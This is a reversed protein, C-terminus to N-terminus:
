VVLAVVHCRAARCAILDRVFLVALNLSGAAFRGRARPRFLGFLALSTGACDWSQWAALDRRTGAVGWGSISIPVLAVGIMVTFLVAADTAPLMFGQARGLAWVVVITLAHIFCGLALIVVGRPGVLVRRAAAALTALWRFYPWRGLLTDMQPALLLGLGGALLLCGYMVLVVERYGGLATLSSPFLLIVFGLAIVLAAGIGRDIVVSIVANRWDYGRRALLWARVGEGALSPLVQAFFMGIATVAVMITPTIRKSHAALEDVIACWRLGVLPIQLMVVVTAFAAWRFDLVRVASLVQGTDVQRSLYWFCTATVLLKVAVIALKKTAGGRSPRTTDLDSAVSTSM